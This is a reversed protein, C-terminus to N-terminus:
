PLILLVFIKSQADVDVNQTLLPSQIVREEM